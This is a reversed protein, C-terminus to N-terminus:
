CCLGTPGAPTASAPLDPPANVALYSGSPVADMIHAVIAHPDDADLIALIASALALIRFCTQSCTSAAPPNGHSSIAPLDRAPHSNVSM